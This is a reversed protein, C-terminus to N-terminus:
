RTRPSIIAKTRVTLSDTARLNYFELRSYPYNPVYDFTITWLGAATYTFVDGVSSANTYTTDDASVALIVQVSDGATFGNKRASTINIFYTIMEHIPQCKISTLTDASTINGFVIPMYGDAYKTADIAAESYQKGCILLATPLLILMLAGIIFKRTM